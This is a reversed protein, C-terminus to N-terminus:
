EARKEAPASAAAEEVPSLMFLVQLNNEAAQRDSLETNKQAPPAAPANVPLDYSAPAQPLNDTSLALNTTDLPSFRVARGRYAFSRALQQAVDRERVSQDASAAANQKRSVATEAKAQNQVEAAQSKFQSRFNDKQKQSIIGRNYQGLDFALKKELLAQQKSRDTHADEEVEIGAYNAADKQLGALCSKVASEPADVLVMDVQDEQQPMKRGGFQHTTKDAESPPQVKGGVREEEGRSEAEINIGNSLLLKDFARNQIAVPKALVHVVVFTNAPVSTERAEGAAASLREDAAETTPPTASPMSTTVARSASVDAGGRLEPQAGARGGIASGATAVENHTSTDSPPVARESIEQEDPRRQPAGLQVAPLPPGASAVPATAPVPLPKEARSISSSESGVGSSPGLADRRSSDGLRRTVETSADHKALAPFQRNRDAGRELVMILLGAAIALSAWIWSRRSRFVTVTPLGDSHPALPVEAAKKPPLHPPALEELRKLIQRRADADASRLPLRQISQSVNGLQDLLQQAAPDNALRLEVAAREAPPLEDDLYASLLEDALEHQFEPDNM